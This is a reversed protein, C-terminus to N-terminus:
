DSKMGKPLYAWRVVTLARGNRPSIFINDFARRKKCYIAFTVTNDICQVIVEIFNQTPYSKYCEVWEITQKM